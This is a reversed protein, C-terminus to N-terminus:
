PMTEEINVARAAVMKILNEPINVSSEMGMAQIKKKRAPKKAAPCVRLIALPVSPPRHAPKMELIRLVISTTIKL